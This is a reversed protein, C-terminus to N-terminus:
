KLWKFLEEKETKYEVVKVIQLESILSHFVYVSGILLLFLLYKYEVGGFSGNPFNGVEFDILYLGVLLFTGFVVFRLNKNM